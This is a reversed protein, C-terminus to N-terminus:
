NLEVVQIACLESLAHRGLAPKYLVEEGSDCDLLATDNVFVARHKGGTEAQVALAGDEDAFQIELDCYVLEFV